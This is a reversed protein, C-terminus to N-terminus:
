KIVKVGNHIYLGGRRVSNVKRGQLDFIMDTTQVTTVNKIATPDSAYELTWHTFSNDYSRRIDCAPANEVGLSENSDGLSQADFAITDTDINVVAFDIADGTNQLYSWNGTYAVAHGNADTITFGNTAPTLILETPTDDVVVGEGDLNLYMGTDVHKLYFTANEAPQVRVLDGTQAVLLEAADDVTKQDTAEDRVTQATAIADNWEEETMGEFNVVPMDGIARKQADEIAADLAAYNLGMESVKVFRYTRAKAEAGDTYLTAGVGTGDQKWYGKSSHIKYLDGEVPILAWASTSTNCFNWAKASSIGLTLGSASMISIEDGPYGDLIFETGTTGLSLATKTQGTNSEEDMVVFLNSEADQIYYTEVAPKETYTVTVTFADADVAVEYQYGEVDTAKFDAADPVGYVDITEGDSYETEEYTVKVTASEPAGEVVIVYTDADVVPEAEEIKWCSGADITGWHGLGATRANIYPAAATKDAYFAYPYEEANTVGTTSTVFYRSMNETLDCYDDKTAGKDEIGMTAGAAYNQIYFGDFPNGVFAWLYDNGESDTPVTGNAETFNIMVDIGKSENVNHGYYFYKPQNCHGRLNYWQQIEEFSNAYQFPFNDVSCPLEVGNAIDDATVTRNPMQIDVGFFTTTPTPFDEGVTADVTETGRAQGDYMFTYTLKAPEPAPGGTVYYFNAGMMSVFSGLTSVTISGSLSGSKNVFNYVGATGGVNTEYLLFADSEVETNAVLLAHAAEVAMTTAADLEAETISSTVKHWEYDDGGEEEQAEVTFDCNYNEAGPQQNCYFKPKWSSSSTDYQACLYGPNASTSQSFRYYGESSEVKWPVSASTSPVANWTDAGLYKGNGDSIYFYGEQGEVATFYVVTGEDQNSVNGSALTTMSLYKESGANKLLYGVSESIGGAHAASFVSLLLVLFSYIKKM